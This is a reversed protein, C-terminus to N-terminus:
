KVWMKLTAINYKDIRNNEFTLFNRKAVFIDKDEGFIQFAIQTYIDELDESTPAFYYKGGTINAIEKLRDEDVDDGLGITYIIINNDAAEQAAELSDRGRNEQGDTLLIEIWPVGTRGNQKLEENATYIGEGMATPGDATLSEISQKVLEKDHTLEQDLYAGDWNWCWGFWYWSCYTFYVHASRDLQTDLKDVFNQAADKADEIKQGEMSGSRDMILIVDVPRQCWFVQTTKVDEFGDDTYEYSDIHLMACLNIPIVKKLEEKIFTENLTDLTENEDLVILIDNAYKTIMAKTLYDQQGKILSFTLAIFIILVISIALLADLSFVFGKMEMVM